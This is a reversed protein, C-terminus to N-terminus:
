LLKGAAREGAQHTLTLLSRVTQPYEATLSDNSLAPLAPAGDKQHLVALLRAESRAMDADAAPGYACHPASFFVQEGVGSVAYFHRFLKYVAGGFYNTLETTLATSGSRGALDFLISVANVVMKRGLISAASVRGLRNQNDTQADHMAGPDVPSGDRVMTRGLLFDASVDYYDCARVIFPLGPERAGTEYHSLLAQSVGLGAAAARQSLGKEKRLLALSRSFGTAM